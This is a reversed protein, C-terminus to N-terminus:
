YLCREVKSFLGVLIHFFPLQTMFTTDPFTSLQASINLILALIKQLVQKGNAQWPWLFVLNIEEYIHCLQSFFFSISLYVRFSAENLSSCRGYPLSAALRTPAATKAWTARLTWNPAPRLHRLYIM